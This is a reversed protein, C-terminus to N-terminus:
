ALGSSGVYWGGRTNPVCLVLKMAPDGSKLHLSWSLHTEYFCLLPCFGIGKQEMKGLTVGTRPLLFSVTGGGGGEMDSAEPECSVSGNGRLASWNWLLGQVGHRFKWSCTSRSMFLFLFCVTCQSVQKSDSFTSHIYPSVTLLSFFLLRQSKVTSFLIATGPPSSPPLVPSLPRLNLLVSWSSGQAAYPVASTM